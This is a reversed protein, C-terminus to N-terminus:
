DSALVKEKYDKEVEEVLPALMAAIKQGRETLYIEFDRPGREKIEVYGFEKLVYVKSRAQSMGVKSVRMLERFSSVKHDPKRYLGVLIKMGSIGLRELETRRRKTLKNKLKQIARM